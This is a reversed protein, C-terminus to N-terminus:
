SVQFAPSSAAPSSFYGLARLWRLISAHFSSTASGCGRLLLQAVIAAKVRMMERVITSPISSPKLRQSQSTMTTPVTNM